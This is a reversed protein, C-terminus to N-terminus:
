LWITDILENICVGDVVTASAKLNNNIWSYWIKAPPTGNALAAIKITNSFGGDTLINQANSQFVGTLIFASLVLANIKM